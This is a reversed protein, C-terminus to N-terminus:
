KGEPWQECTKRYEQGPLYRNWEERTMSRRLKRCGIEALDELRVIWLRVNGSRRARKLFM